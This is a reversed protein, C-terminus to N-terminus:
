EIVEIIEEFLKPTDEAHTTLVVRTGGKVPDEHPPAPESIKIILRKIGYADESVFPMRIDMIQFRTWFVRLDSRGPTILDRFERVIQMRYYEDLGISRLRVNSDFFEMVKSMLRLEDVARDTCVHLRFELTARWPEHVLVANGTGKDVVGERAALNYATAVPVELRQLIIVPVKAVETYDQQTTYAIEPEYRFLIFPRDGAPIAETLTIVKTSPNYSSLIDSLLEPDTSFNFVADVDTINFATDLTYDNLDITTQDESYPPLDYNAIPRIESKMLPILSRFILDELYDIRIEMLVRIETVKPTTYKDTTILNVVVGFERDPLIPFTDIHANITGEDNWDSAGAVSWDAGDWWYHDSGDYLRVQTATDVPSSQFVQLMLLKRCAKPTTTWTRFWIDEDTPFYGDSQRRLRIKWESRDLFILSTDSFVLENEVDIGSGPNLVFEKIYRYTEAVSTEQISPM